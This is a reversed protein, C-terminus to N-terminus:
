GVLHALIKEIRQPNGIGCACPKCLMDAGEALTMSGKRIKKAVAEVLQPSILSHGCQTIIELTKEDPLRDTKGYLGLSIHHTHEKLGACKCVDHVDSFLGSLVVSIGLKQSKIEQVLNRVDDMNSFVATVVGTMPAMTEVDDEGFGMPKGVFNIPKYKLVTRALASMQEMKEAKKPSHVMCLVVMEEGPREDSLGRRNLTHTM